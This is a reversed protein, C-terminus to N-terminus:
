TYFNTGHLAAVWQANEGQAIISGGTYFTYPKCAKDWLGTGCRCVYQSTGTDAEM